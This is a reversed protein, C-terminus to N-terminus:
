NLIWGTQNAISSSSGDDGVITLTTAQASAEINQCYSYGLAPYAVLRVTGSTFGAASGDYGGVEGYITPTTTSNLALGFLLRGGSAQYANAATHTVDLLTDAVFGGIVFDTRGTGPTTNGNAARKTTSAYTWTDTTDKAFLRRPVRNYANFIMRRSASDETQNSATAYITGVYLRTPDGSKIWLNTTSDQAIATARTTTNTWVLTELTPTGSNSYLFVDYVSGSTLSLSLTVESITHLEWNTRKLWACNHLYPTYRLTGIATVDATTVPTNATGTLRGGPAYYPAYAEIAAGGNAFRIFGGATSALTTLKTGDMYPVNGSTASLSANNTGGSGLPLASSLTLSAATAAGSAVFAACKLDKYTSDSANRIAVTNADERKIALDQVSASGAGFTLLGESKLSIRPITDGTVGASVNRNGSAQLVTFDTTLDLKTLAIGASANINGNTINGNAWTVIDTFNTNMQSPSIVTGAVFTNTIILTSM